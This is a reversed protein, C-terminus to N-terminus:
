QYAAVRRDEILDHVHEFLTRLRAASPSRPRARRPSAANTTLFEGRQERERLSAARDRSYDRRRSGTVFVLVAGLLRQGLPGVKRLLDM